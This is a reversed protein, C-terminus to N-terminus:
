RGRGSRPPGPPGSGSAPSAGGTPEGLTRGLERFRAGADQFDIEVALIRRYFGYAAEPDGAAEHACAMYYHVGLLEDESGLPPELAKGLAGIALDPEGADLFCRGLMEYAGLSAPDERVAQQFEGIAEQVLGMTRYAVGMDQRTRGNGPPLSRGLRARFRSLATAFDEGPDTQRDEATIRTEAPAAPGDDLITAGLDVYGAPPGPEIRTGRRPGSPPRPDGAATM